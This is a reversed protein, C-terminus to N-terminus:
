GEAAALQPLREALAAQARAAAQALAQIGATLEAPGATEDECLHELQRARTSMEMLGFNGALSIMAHANTRVTDRPTDDAQLVSLRQRLTNDVESLMSHLTAAGMLTELQNLMEEQLVPVQEEVPTPAPAPTAAPATEAPPLAQVPGIRQSWRVLAAVLHEAEIPKALHDNMGARRCREVEAPLANATLAVIPIRGAMSPLARIARTAELGDMGPMQVDMLVLDVNHHQVAEVAAAGDAVMEVQHGARELIARILLQNVPLDEAVLIRLPRAPVAGAGTAGPTPLAPAHNPAETPRLPVEVWFTSGRGADSSVGIRGEMLSVLRKCIALGLGTGGYRRATSADAQHFPEFLKGQRAPPIGIGTDEVALRLFPKGEVMEVRARLGVHGAQTFKVANNLLNLVIQRVRTPDLMLWPPLDPAIDLIVRLGKEEAMPRVLDVCTQLLGVTESAMEELELRGADIKSFDLVDNIVALLTRGAEAQLRIYHRREAEPPNATLLLDAFGIVANLPTRLEHSVTALFDAKAKAAEEAERRAQRLAEEQRTRETVDSMAGFLSQAEGAENRVVIGRVVLHRQTGDPRRIRMRTEFNDAGDIAEQVLASLLDHDEPELLARAAELSPQFSNQDLGHIRYVEDSWIVRGSALEIQWHGVMAVQEALRLLRNAEETDRAQRQRRKEEVLLMHFFGYFALSALIGAAVTWVLLTHWPALVEALSLGVTAILPYDHIARYAVIREVGDIASVTTFTGSPAQRFRSMLPTSLMSQQGVSKGTTDGDEEGSRARVMGDMGVISVVGSKGLDLRRYYNALDAPNIAAVAVGGFSGDPRNIRLSVPVSHRGSLRGIIPPGIFIGGSDRDLHALVHARDLYNTIRADPGLGRTSALLYGAADIVSVEVSAGAPSNQRRIVRALDFHQADAELDAKVARLLQDVTSLLWFSQEEFALSLNTVDREAARLLTGRELHLFGIIAGWLLALAAFLALLSKGSAGQMM